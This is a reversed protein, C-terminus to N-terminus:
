GKIIHKLFTDKITKLNGYYPEKTKLVRLTIRALKRALKITAVHEPKSKKYEVYDSALTYRSNKVVNAMEIFSTRLHKASIKILPGHYEKGGSASTSPSLGVYSCFESVNKFREADGIEAKLVAARFFGVGPITMLLKVEEKIEKKSNIYRKIKKDYDVITQTLFNITDNLKELNYKDAKNLDIKNMQEKLKEKIFSVKQVGYNSFINKIKTKFSSRKDVYHIRARILARLQQITEDPIYSVKLCVKQVM